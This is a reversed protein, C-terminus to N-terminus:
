NGKERFQKEWMIAYRGGLNILEEHNGEEILIGNELLLIKDCLRASSLRHTVVLISIDRIQKLLTNVMLESLSDLNSTAEDFIILDPNKLIAQAISIKQRQGGSLNSGNESIKTLFKDPLSEIFDLLGIVRCVDKVKDIKIKDNGLTLNFMITENFLFPDQSVYGIRSRLDALNINEYKIDNWKIYGDDSNYFGLLLKVLTSKGVGSEGVIAIKEGKNMSFSVNNIINKRASYSFFINEVKLNELKNIKEGKNIDEIPQFLLDELRNTAVFASQIKPYIQSLNTLPNIFFNLISNFMLLEGISLDGRVIYICGTCIIIINTTNKIVELIITQISINNGYKISSDILMNLKHNLNDITYQQLNESKIKEYGKMYEILSSKSQANAEMLIYNQKLLVKKYLTLVLVILIVSACSIFFLTGNIYILFLSSVLVFLIDMLVAMASTVLADRIKNVDDIRSTIEGIKRSSFFNYTLNIVRSYVYNLLTSDIKKTLIYVTYQRSIDFFGKIFIISVIVMTIYALINIEDLNIINDFVYKYYISTSVGLISIIISLIFILAFIKWNGIIIRKSIELFTNPIRKKTFIESPKLTLIISMGSALLNPDCKQIKHESPDGIIISNDEKKYIVIFHGEGKKNVTSLIFPCLENFELDNLETLKVKRGKTYFGLKKAALLMGKGSTGYQDTKCFREVEAITVHKKYYKCIMALCAPGCEKESNQEILPYRKM